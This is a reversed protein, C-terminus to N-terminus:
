TCVLIMHMAERAATAELVEIAELQAASLPPVEGSDHFRKLSRVFYPDFKLIIRGEYYYFISCRIYPLDGDSVEGKRDFYWNPQALTELVDPREQRLINYIRHSSVIDSEGGEKARHLCLFGIIDADDVHFFQRANTSYIRVKDIQTPDNGLDKVHGLIHGKGNQSLFAGLHSGIGMYAVAVLDVPYDKTTRFGKFLTFGKGNILDKRLEALLGTIRNQYDDKVWLTPGDVHEPFESYPVVKVWLPEYQRSTLDLQKAQEKLFTSRNAPPIEVPTTALTPM